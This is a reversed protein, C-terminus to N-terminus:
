KFVLKEQKKSFLLCLINPVIVDCTELYPSMLTSKTERNDVYIQVVILASTYCVAICTMSNRPVSETIDNLIDYLLNKFSLMHGDIM